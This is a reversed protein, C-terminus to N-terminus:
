LSYFALQTPQRSSDDIKDQPNPPYVTLGEGGLEPPLEIGGPGWFAPPVGAGGLTPPNPLRNWCLLWITV